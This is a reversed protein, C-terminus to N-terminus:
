LVIGLDAALIQAEEIILNLETTSAESSSIPLPKETAIDILIEGLKDRVVPYGRETAQQKCYMKISDIGQGTYDHIKQCYVHFLSNQKLTRKNKPTSVTLLVRDNFKDRCMGLVEALKHKIGEDEPLTFCLKGKEFVRNVNLQVEM